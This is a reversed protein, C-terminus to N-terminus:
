GRKKKLIIKTSLPWEGSYPPLSNGFNTVFLSMPHFPYMCITVDGGGLFIHTYTKIKRKNKSKTLEAGASSQNANQHHLPESLSSPPIALHVIGEVKESITSQQFTKRFIWKQTMRWPLWFRRPGPVGLIKDHAQPPTTELMPRLGRTCALYLRIKM